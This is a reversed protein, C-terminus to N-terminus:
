RKDQDLNLWAMEAASFEIQQAAINEELDSKRRNGFLGFINLPQNFVYAVAIQAVSVGREEALQSARALREFNDDSAYADVVVKDFYDSFSALNDPSFRGSFFGGALSSWTFLPMQTEQYFAREAKAQPGSISICGPWPEQVQVALSFNPSSFAFPQLSHSEAYANAEKVRAVSWNSGGYIGIVGKEHYEHLKEVIPGVPKSPDDRHLMYIEFFDTRLRAMSDHIDAEIDFPTVRPRDGYPHAGKTIIVVEDRIGRAEVWQGLARESDGRGYGHATDFTNLGLSFVDDLLAFSEDLKDMGIIGATGQVIRSIKKDVGKISGTIM